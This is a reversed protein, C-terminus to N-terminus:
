NTKHFIYTGLIDNFFVKYSGAKAPINYGGSVGTGNPFENNGWNYDWDENARFKLESDASLTFDAKWDHCETATTFGTMNFDTSWSSFEGILGMSNYAPQNSLKTWTLEYTSTNLSIKYYGATNVYIDGQNYNSDSYQQGGNENGGWICYRWDGPVRLILFQSGAPFYGAYVLTHNGESYMPIMSPSDFPSDSNDWFGNGICSGVLWWPDADFDFNFEKSSIDSHTEGTGNANTYVDFYLKKANFAKAVKYVKNLDVEYQTEETKGLVEYRSFNMKDSVRVEYLPHIIYSTSTLPEWNLSCEVVTGDLESVASLSLDILPYEVDYGDNQTLSSNAKLADAPIPFVNKSKDFTRGEISGGKMNWNSTPEEGYATGYKEFRILDSRRHGEFGFERSWENLITNLNASHANTLGARLRVLNLAALGDSTCVGGNQRADVEAIILLAESYRFLPFDTSAFTSIPNTGDSTINLYKLYGYGDRFSMGESIQMNPVGGACFFLARKDGKSSAFSAIDGSLDDDINVDFRNAFDPRAIIGEWQGNLGNPYIENYLSSATAAILFTTGSWLWEASVENSYPIPLIIEKRAYGTNNDGAFLKQYSNLQGTSNTCIGYASNIVYQAAQQAFVLAVNQEVSSLNDVYVNMNLYLRALLLAAAARDFRGYDISMPEALKESWDVFENQIFYFVDSRSAQQAKLTQTNANTNCPVNGFMDMLYYYYLARLMHIEANHMSDHKYENALYANCVDINACLRYFLGKAQPLDSGWQNTNMEHTGNDLWVCYAEDTTITNLLWMSRLFSGHSNDVGDIPEESRLTAYCRNFLDEENDIVVNGLIINYVATVDGANVAGDGNVDSTALYTVDGNLIYNYLATIDAANVAGDGNVDGTLAWLTTPCLAIAIVAILRMAQNKIKNM